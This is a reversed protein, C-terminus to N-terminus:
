GAAVRYLTAQALEEATLATAAGNLLLCDARESPVGEIAQQVLDSGADLEEILDFRDNLILARRGGNRPFIIIQTLM